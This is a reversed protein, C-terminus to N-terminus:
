SEQLTKHVFSKSIKKSNNNKDWIFVSDAIERISMGNKKAELIEQKVKDSIGKRGWRNGKYSKTEKGPIKIVAQKIRDSKKKSEDEAMWGLLNLTLDQMQIQSGDAYSAPKGVMVTTSAQYVPNLVFFSIVGSAAVALVTVLIILWLRKQIIHIYERLDIELETDRVEM